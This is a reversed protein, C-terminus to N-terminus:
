RDLLQEVGTPYLPPTAANAPRWIVLPLTTAADDADLFEFQELEYAAPDLFDTALVFVIEHGPNGDFQFRNEFVGLLEGVRVEMGLEEMLERAVTESALEGFEVHGGLGRQFVLGTAPDSAEGVLLAGDAPRRIFALAKV